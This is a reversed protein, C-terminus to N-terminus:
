QLNWSTINDSRRGELAVGNGDPGVSWVCVTYGTVNTAYDEGGHIATFQLEVEGDDNFDMMCKYARGWPDLFGVDGNADSQIAAGPIDMFRTRRSNLGNINEGRLINSVDEDVLLGAGGEDGASGMFGAPWKGYTNYQDFYALLAKELQKVQVKAKRKRASVMAKDIGFFLLGAMIGIIFIVALLELLTFGSRTSTSNSRTVCRYSM